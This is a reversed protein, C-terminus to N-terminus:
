LLAAPSPRERGDGAARCIWDTLWDVARRPRRAAPAAGAAAGGGAAQGLTGTFTANRTLIQRGMAEAPLYPEAPDHIVVHFVVGRDVTQANVYSLIAVRRAEDLARRAAAFKEGAAELAKAVAAPDKADKADKADKEDKFGYPECDEATALYICPGSM